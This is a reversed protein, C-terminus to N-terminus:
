WMLDDPIKFDAYPDDAKTDEQQNKNLLIIATSDRLAIKEAIGAPVLEYDDKLRVIALQGSALQDQLQKTVYLKQVTKGDTFNYGIDGDNNEILNTEILQKIQASIAQQEATKKRKQNLERDRVTKEARARQVRLKEESLQNNHKGKKQKTLKHKEKKGKNAKKNDILGSKKLQDFLTNGM